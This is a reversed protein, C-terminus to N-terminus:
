SPKAGLTRQLDPKLQQLQAGWERWDHIGNDPFNFTVNKGGAAGYADRFALNGGIAQGEILSLAGANAATDGPAPAGNGCYIWLRTNNAVLKAVNVTPDNRAWAPDSPPGWMADASFGGADGMALGVLGPWQAASLNLFGSLAAAYVFQQPHYIALVLAASAGMSLGVVGNRTRSIKKNTSLWAPLEQTLFTEWKYTQTTGNGVAPQYWDSYFSSEGGVPMVVSLGSDRYWDFASTNIDWGNFDDQARLGDLLYVAHPGGAMFEVKVPHGMAASPVELYEIPTGPPSFAEARPAAVAFSLVCTAIVLATILFRHVVGDLHHHQSDM